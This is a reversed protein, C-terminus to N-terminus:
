LCRGKYCPGECDAKQRMNAPVRILAQSTVLPDACHRQDGGALNSKGPVNGRPRGFVM